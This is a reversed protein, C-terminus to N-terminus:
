EGRLRRSIRSLFKVTKEPEEVLPPAPEDAKDDTSAKAILKNFLDESTVKPGSDQAATQRQRFFPNSPKSEASKSRLSAERSPQPHSQGGIVSAVVLANEDLAAGELLVNSLKAGKFIAGLLIAGRFSCNTIKTNTFDANRLNAGEFQSNDCTSELFSAKELDAAPMDIKQIIARRLSVENAKIGKFTSGILYGGDFRAEELSCHDVTSHKWLSSRLDASRFNVRALNVQAFNVGSLNASDFNTGRMRARTFVAGILNANTFNLGGLQVASFDLGELSDRAQLLGKLLSYKGRGKISGPPGNILFVRFMRVAERMNRANRYYLMANLLHKFRDDNGSLRSKLYLQEEVTALEGYLGQIEALSGSHGEMKSKHLLESRRAYLTTLEESGDIAM